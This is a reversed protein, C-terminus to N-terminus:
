KERSGQTPLSMWAVQIRWEPPHHGHRILLRSLRRGIPWYSGCLSGLFWDGWFMRQIGGSFHNDENLTAVGEALLHHFVQAWLHTLRKDVLARRDDPQAPTGFLDPIYCVHWACIATGLMSLHSLDLGCTTHFLPRVGQAEAPWWLCALVNWQLGAIHQPVTRELISVRTSSRLRWPNWCLLLCNEHMARFVHRLLAHTPWCDRNVLQPCECPKDRKWMWFLSRDRGARKWLCRLGWRCHRKTWFIDNSLEGFFFYSKEWFDTNVHTSSRMCAHLSEQGNSRRTAYNLSNPGHANLQWQDRGRSMRQMLGDRKKKNKWFFFVKQKWYKESKKAEITRYNKM